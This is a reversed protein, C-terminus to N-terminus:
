YAKGEDVVTAEDSFLAVFGDIDRPDLEFYHRVVDPLGELMGLASDLLRVRGAIRTLAFRGRFSVSHSVQTKLV